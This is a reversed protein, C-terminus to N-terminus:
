FLHKSVFEAWNDESLLYQSIYVCKAAILQGLLQGWVNWIVKFFEQNLFSMDWACM